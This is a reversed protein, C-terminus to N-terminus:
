AVQETFNTNPVSKLAGALRVFFSWFSRLQVRSCLDLNHWASAAARRATLRQRRIIKNHRAVTSSTVLECNQGVGNLFQSPRSHKSTVNQFYLRFVHCCWLGFLVRCYCCWSFLVMSGQAMNVMCGGTCYLDVAHSICCVVLWWVRWCDCM